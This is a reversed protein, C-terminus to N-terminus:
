LDCAYRYITNIKAVFIIIKRWLEGCNEVFLETFAYFLQMDTWFTTLFPHTLSLLKNKLKLSRLFVLLFSKFFM